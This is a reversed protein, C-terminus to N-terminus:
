SGITDRCIGDPISESREETVSSSKCSSFAMSTERLSRFNSLSVVTALGGYQSTGDLAESVWNCLVVARQGPLGLDTIWVVQGEDVLGNGNNDLGDDIEGVLGVKIGKRVM